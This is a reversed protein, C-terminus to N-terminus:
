DDALDFPYKGTNVEYKLPTRPESIVADKAQLISRRTLGLNTARIGKRRAQEAMLAARFIQLSAARIAIAEQMFEVSMALTVKGQLSEEHHFDDKQVNATRAEAVEKADKNWRHNVLNGRKIKCGTADITSLPKEFITNM